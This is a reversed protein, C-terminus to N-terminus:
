SCTRSLPRGTTSTTRQSVSCQKEVYAGPIQRCPARALCRAGRSLWSLLFAGINAPTGEDTPTATVTATPRASPAISESNYPFKLDEVWWEYHRGKQNGKFVAAAYQHTEPFEKSKAGEVEFVAVAYITNDAGRSDDQGVSQIKVFRLDQDNSSKLRRRLSRVPGTRQEVM